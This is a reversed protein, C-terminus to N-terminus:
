KAPAIKVSNEGLTPMTDSPTGYSSTKTTTNDGTVEGTSGETANEIPVSETLTTKSVNMIEGYDNMELSANALCAVLFYFLALALIHHSAKKITNKAAM